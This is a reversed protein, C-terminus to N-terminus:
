PTIRRDCQGSRPGMPTAVPGRQPKAVRTPCPTPARRGTGSTRGSGVPLHPRGHRQEGAQEAGALRLHHLPQSLDGRVDVRELRLDLLEGVRLQTRLGILEAGPVGVALAQVLQQRLREGHGALGRHARDALAVERHLEHAARRQVQAVDRLHLGTLALREGRHEGGVQVRDGPVAHVQDRDVVVQGLPVRLVHAADVAEQAQRDPHDEGLHRGRHPALLVRGVDGVARVVLEAEVVQAVVHRPLLGIEHLTAVVEGDDVLGVRDEDVLRARRQDDRPGGLLAGPPVLLERPHRRHELLVDVVLHVLALAGHADGLLADRQDFVLQPDVVEVLGRVGREDPIQVVRQLDLFQELAVLVVDDRVALHEDDVLEGPAHEGAAAVVLAQVLRDLGLLAHLDLRLVLGQGGDRQLVVEAEVRLERAHGAGGLGLRGLQVLDVLHM